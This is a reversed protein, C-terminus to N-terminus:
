CRSMCEIAWKLRYAEFRCLGNNSSNSQGGGFFWCRAGAPAMACGCWTNAL